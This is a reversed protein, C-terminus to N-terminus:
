ETLPVVVEEFELVSQEQTTADDRAASAACESAAWEEEENEEHVVPCAENGTRQVGDGVFLLTTMVSGLMYPEEAYRFSCGFALRI